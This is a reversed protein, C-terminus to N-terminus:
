NPLTGPQTGSRPCCRNLFLLAMGLWRAGTSSQWPPSQAAPTLGVVTAVALLLVRRAAPRLRRRAATPCRCRRPTCCCACWGALLAWVLIALVFVLV